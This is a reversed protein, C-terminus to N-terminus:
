ILVVAEASNCDAASNRADFGEDLTEDLTLDSWSKNPRVPLCVDEKM